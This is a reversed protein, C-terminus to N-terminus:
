CGYKEFEEVCVSVCSHPDVNQEKIDKLDKRMACACGIIVLVVAWYCMKNIWWCVRDTKTQIDSYLM